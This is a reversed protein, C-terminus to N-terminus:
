GKRQKCEYMLADGDALLAEVNAHVKPDFDVVGFSFDIQYDHPSKDNYVDLRAQLRLIV